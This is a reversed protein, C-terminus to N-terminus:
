KTRVFSFIQSNDQKKGFGYELNYRNLTPIALEHKTFWDQMFLPTDEMRMKELYEASYSDYMRYPISEKKYGYTKHEDWTRSTSWILIYEKVHSNQRWDYTIDNGRSAPLYLARMADYEEQEQETLIGRSTLEYLRKQFWKPLINYPHFPLRSSIIIDPAYTAIWEKNDINEVISLTNERNQDWNDVAHYTFIDWYQEKLSQQMHYALKGNGACVELIVVKKNNSYKGLHITLWEVLEKTIIEHELKWQSFDYAFSFIRCLWSNCADVIDRLSPLYSINELKHIYDSQEMLLLM